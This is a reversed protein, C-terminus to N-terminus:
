LTKAPQLTNKKTLYVCLMAVNMSEAQELRSSCLHTPKAVQKHKSHMRIPTHNTSFVKALHLLNFELVAAIKYKPKQLIM